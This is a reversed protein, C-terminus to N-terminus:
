KNIDVVLWKQIDDLNYWGCWAGAETMFVLANGTVNYNDFDEGIKWYDTTGDHLTVEIVASEPFKM